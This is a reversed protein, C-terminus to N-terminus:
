SMSLSSHGWSGLSPPPNARSSSQIENLTCQSGSLPIKEGLILNELKKYYKIDICVYMCVIHMCTYWM